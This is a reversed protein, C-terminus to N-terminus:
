EIKLATQLETAASQLHNAAAAHAHHSTGGMMKTTANVLKLAEHLLQDSKAQSEGKADGAGGKANTATGSHHQPDLAKAAQHLLRMAEVRHGEYDHKAQALLAISQRINRLAQVTSPNVHNSSSSPRRVSGTRTTSTAPKSTPKSTPATASATTSKGTTKKASLGESTEAGGVLALASCAGLIRKM